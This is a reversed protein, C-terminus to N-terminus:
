AVPAQKDDEIRRESKLETKAETTAENRTRKLEGAGVHYKNSASESLGAFLKPVADPEHGNLNCDHCNAPTFAAECQNCGELYALADILDTESSRLTRSDSTSVNPGSASAM